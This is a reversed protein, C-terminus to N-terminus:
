YYRIVCSRRFNQKLFYFNIWAKDNSLTATFKATEGETLQIDDFGQTVMVPERYIFTACSSKETLTGCEFNGEDEIAAREITIRRLRGRVEVKVRPNNTIDVGNRYWKVKILASTNFHSVM